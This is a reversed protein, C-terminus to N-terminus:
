LNIKQIIMRVKSIFEGIGGDTRLGFNMHTLFCYMLSECANEYENEIEKIYDNPCKRKRLKGIKM